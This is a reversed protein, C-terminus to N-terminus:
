GEQRNGKGHAQRDRGGEQRRVKEWCAKVGMCVKIKRRKGGEGPPLIGTETGQRGAWAKGLVCASKGIGLGAQGFKGLGAEKGERGMGVMGAKGQRVLHRHRRRRGGAWAHRRGAVM